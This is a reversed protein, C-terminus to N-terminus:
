PTLNLVDALLARADAKDLLQNANGCKVSVICRPCGQSCQCRTLRELTAELWRQAVQFARQAFGAGGPAADHVFVTPAVTGHHYATSLGGIDWRDCPAFVPLVGIATHEIAHAAAGMQTSSYGLEGEISAPVSWWVAETTFQRRPMELAVSDIVADTTEDRRLYGTVQSTLQVTGFHVTTAGLPKSAHEEVIDLDRVTQAQTYYTPRAARILAVNDDRDLREVIWTHGQHLYVAGEFVLRDAAVHDVVGIIRGTDAEIIDIPQAETSRLNIFEVARDARTWYWRQGRDRLVKSSELREILPVMHHSFWRQDHPELPKEQAAAALHLGLVHPNEPYVIANELPTDFILEPHAMLYADLPNERALLVALADNGARGARGVQQWMSSLRGPYGSILVVDVGSIDVGLELANTTALGSITGDHLGAELARREMGLYGGRYAAIREPHRAREAAALCVLEAGIRSSVFALTQKHDDSLHALLEATDQALSRTPQWLALTRQPSPATSQDVVALADEAILRAGFSAMNPTTASSLMVGPAAGYAAALRRLRRIVLAVHAGILGQYHHAEDIVIYRLRSLFRRWRQHHPLMSYHLMDPNTVLVAAHDRAYRREAQDSDGDLAGIPWGPAALTTAARLQDHALAKTPAIYLATPSSRHPEATTAALIPMWYALSKGSGTPTCIAAHNGAHVLEAFRVQHLWPRSIGADAIAALVNEPMWSPWAAHQQPRAPETRLAVVEDRALLWEM